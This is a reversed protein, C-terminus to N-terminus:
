RCATETLRQMSTSMWPENGFINSM